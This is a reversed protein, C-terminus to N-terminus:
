STWRTGLIIKVKEKDLIAVELIYCGEFGQYILEKVETLTFQECVSVYDMVIDNYRRNNQKVHGKVQSWAMEIPNLECHAVLLRVVEHGIIIM